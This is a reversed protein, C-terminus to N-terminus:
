GAPRARRAIFDLAAAFAQDADLTSTDLDFADPAARLPAIGRGQDRADREKMDQLVRPYIPSEGRAQLERFRREARVEASAHVYLKVVDPEPCVVTGIDRGDIVAGAAGGPPHRAFERQFDLLAARVPPQAAVVSAARSVVEDRLEPAALDAQALTRAAVEAAERDAPKGGNRLVKAGVARYLLGSDLHALKFHAALRKALTGKGAGAPGDIAIILSM